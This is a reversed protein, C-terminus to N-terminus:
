QIEFYDFNEESATTWVLEVNCEKEKAYFSSLEVPLSVLATM